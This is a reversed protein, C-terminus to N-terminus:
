VTLDSESKMDVANQLIREFVAAAIAIVVSGFILLVGLVVGGARDDDAALMVFVLAGAVFGILATACRKINRLAKVAEPSFVRNRGAFGLLKFSQYLAMYFAISATYAYALFPDKFYVEFVTAQANRGEIHPFWLMVVLAGVAVLVLVVQLFITSGRNM